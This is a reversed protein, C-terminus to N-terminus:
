STGRMSRTAGSSVTLVSITRRSVPLPARSDTRTSASSGRSRGSTRATPPSMCPCTASSACVTRTRMPACRMGSAPTRLAPTVATQERAFAAAWLATKGAHVRGYDVRMPDGGWDVSRVEDLTLAGRAMFPEPSLLDTSGAFTSASLYPSHASDPPNLPLIQWYRQGAAALFDIFERAATGLDGIGCPGPLASVPLLIGSSRTM